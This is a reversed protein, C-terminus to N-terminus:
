YLLSVSYRNCRTALPLVCERIEQRWDEVRQVSESIHVCLCVSGSGSGSVFVSVCVFVYEVSVQLLSLLSLSRSLSLSLSLSVVTCDGALAKQKM